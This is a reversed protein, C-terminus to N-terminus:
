KFYNLMDKWNTFRIGRDDIYAIAAPKNNTLEHYHLGELFGNIGLWREVEKRMDIDKKDNAEDFVPNLRTTFIVVRYGSMVLTALAEKAGEMPKDYMSGDCYGKSYKHIVGDLDVAITRKSM